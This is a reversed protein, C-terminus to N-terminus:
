KEFFISLFINIHTLLFDYSVYIEIFCPKTGFVSFDWAQWAFSPRWPTCGVGQCHVCFGGASRRLSRSVPPVGPRVDSGKCLVLHRAQWAFSRAHTLSHSHTIHSPTLTIHTYTILTHSHHHIHPLLHSTCTLSPPPPRSSSSSASSPTSVSSFVFVGCTLTPFFWRFGSLKSPFVEFLCTWRDYDM